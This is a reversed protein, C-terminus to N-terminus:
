LNAEGRTLELRLAHHEARYWNLNFEIPERQADYTTRRRHLVPVGSPIALRQAIRDTALEASIVESSRVAEIQSARAITEYLRGSWDDSESVGLRPHLTSVSLVVPIGDWGRVRTIRVVNTGPRLGLTVAEDATCECKESELSYNVVEIGRRKMEEAFSHWESLATQSGKPVVRTGHGPRREILGEYLLRSM